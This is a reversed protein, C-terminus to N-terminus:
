LKGEKELKEIRGYTSNYETSLQSISKEIEKDDMELVNLGHKIWDDLVVKTYSWNPNDKHSTLRLAEIISEVPLIDLYKICESITFPNISKLYRFFAIQITEIQEQNYIKDTKDLNSDQNNDLDSYLDNDLYDNFHNNLESNPNDNLDEDINKYIKKESDKVFKKTIEIENKKNKIKKNEM